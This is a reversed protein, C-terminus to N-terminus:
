YLKISGTCASLKLKKFNIYLKYSDPKLNHKKIAYYKKFM